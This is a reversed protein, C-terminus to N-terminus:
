NGLLSRTQFCIWHKIYWRSKLNWFNQLNLLTAFLVIALPWSCLCIVSVWSFVVEICVYVYVYIFRYGCIHTSLSTFSVQHLLCSSSLLPAFVIPIDQSTHSISNPNRASPSVLSTAPLSLSNPLSCAYPTALSSRWPSRQNGPLRSPDNPVVALQYIWGIFDRCTMKFM